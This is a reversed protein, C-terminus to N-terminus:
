NFGSYTASASCSAGDPGAGVVNFYIVTVNRDLLGDAVVDYTWDGLRVQKEYYIDNSGGYNGIFSLGHFFGEAGLDEFYLVSTRRTPGALFHKVHYDTVQFISQCADGDARTESFSGDFEAHPDAVAVTSMSGLAISMVAILTWPRM